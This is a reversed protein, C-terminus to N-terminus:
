PKVKHRLRSKTGAKHRIPTTIEGGDETPSHTRDEGSRRIVDEQYPLIDMINDIHFGWGTLLTRFLAPMDVINPENTDIKVVTTQYNNREDRTGTPEITIKM